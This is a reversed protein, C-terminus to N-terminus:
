TTDDELNKFQILIVIVTTVFTIIQFLYMNLFSFQAMIFLTNCVSFIGSNNIKLSGCAVIGRDLHHIWLKQNSQNKYDDKKLYEDSDLVNEVRNQLSLYEDM